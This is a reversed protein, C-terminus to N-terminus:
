NVYIGVTRRPRGAIGFLLALVGFLLWAPQGLISKLVPDWMTPSFTRVVTNQLGEGLSPALVAIHDLLSRSASPGADDVPIDAIFTIAALLAFLASLFRMMLRPRTAPGVIAVIAMAVLAAALAKFVWSAPAVGTSSWEFGAFVAIALALLTLLKLLRQNIM